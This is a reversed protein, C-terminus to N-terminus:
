WGERDIWHRHLWNKRSEDANPVDEKADLTACTLRVDELTIKGSELLVALIAKAPHQNNILHGLVLDVPKLLPAVLQVQPNDDSNSLTDGTGYHWMEKRYRTEDIPYETVQIRMGKPLVKGRIVVNSKFRRDPKPNRVDETLVYFGVPLADVNPSDPM